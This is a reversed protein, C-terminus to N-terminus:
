RLQQHFDKELDLLWHRLLPWLKDTTTTRGHRIHHLSGIGLTEIRAWASKLEPELNRFQQDTTQQRALRLDELYESERIDILKQWIDVFESEVGYGSLNTLHIEPIHRRIKSFNVQSELALYDRDILDDMLLMASLLSTAVLENFLRDQEPQKLKHFKVLKRFEPQQWCQFSSQSAAQVLRTAVDQPDTSPKKFFM